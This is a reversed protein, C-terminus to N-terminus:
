GKAYRTGSGGEAKLPFGEGWAPIITMLRLFEEVSGFDEPTESIAEDHVSLVPHYGAAELRLLASALFDRCMGQICNELLKGGWTTEVAWQKTYSNVGWHAIQRSRKKTKPNEVDKFFPRAYWLVRGSPLRCQLWKQKPPKCYKFPGASFVEGPNLIAEKCAAELARWFDCVKPNLERWGRVAKEATEIPILVGQKKCTAQFKTAGMGYGRGLVTNKGLFRQQKTVDEVPIGFIFAATEEYVKGGRAFLNIIETEEAAWVCGRAEVSSYDGFYLKHDPKAIVAGRMMKALTAFPSGWIMELTDDGYQQMDEWAQDWGGEGEPITSRVLNQLQIGRGGWRGTAAAHFQLNGRARGRPAYGAFKGLKALSSKGADLRLELADKVGEPLDPKCLLELIAEKDAAETEYEEGNRRTKTITKLEIGQAKVWDKLRALQSVKEVAGGTIAAMKKNARALTRDAFGQARHVFGIDVEVGRNNMVQDLRWVNVEQPQLPRLIHDVGIEALVDTVCYKTLRDLKEADYHWYVGNPDEDKHPARPKCMQMMLRSGASDKEVALNLVKCLGDLDLPLAQVAARVMTCDLQELKPVPWGLVPGAHLTDIAAEFAANHGTVRCGDEILMAVTAPMPPSAAYDDMNGHWIIPDSCKGREWEVIWAAAMIRTSPDEAYVHVGVKKLDVESRTEIDRHVCPYRGGRESVSPSSQNLRLAVSQNPFCIENM